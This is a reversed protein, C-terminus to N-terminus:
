SGSFTNFERELWKQGNFKKWKLMARMDKLVKKADPDFLMQYLREPAQEIVWNITDEPTSEKILLIGCGEVGPYAEPIWYALIGKVRTKRWRKGMERDFREKGWSSEVLAREADTYLFYSETLKDWRYGRKLAEAHVMKSFPHKGKIKRNWDKALALALNNFEELTKCEEIAQVWESRPQNM